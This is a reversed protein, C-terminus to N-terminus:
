IGDPSSFFDVALIGAAQAQRFQRWTPGDRRPAPGAGAARLVEYVTSAAVAVGLKALEGHVRRYGRLPTEKALRHHAPRHEPGPPRAPTAQQHRIEQRRAQPTPVAIDRADSPFVEARRRRPIFRTLVALWARGANRRLVANEHRLVLLEADKEADGRVLLVALAFIWRMLLCAIKLLV